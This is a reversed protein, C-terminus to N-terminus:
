KRRKEVTCSRAFFFAVVVISGDGEKQQVASNGDGEKKEKKQLALVHL